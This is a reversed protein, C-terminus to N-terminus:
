IIKSKNFMLAKDVVVNSGAVNYGRTPLGDM